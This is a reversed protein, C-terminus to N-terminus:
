FESLNFKGLLISDSISIGSADILDSNIKFETVRLESFRFDKGKKALYLKMSDSIKNIRLLILGNKDSGIKEIASLSGNIEFVFSNSSNGTFVISTDSFGNKIIGSVQAKTVPIIIFKGTLEKKLGTRNNKDLKNWEASINYRKGFESLLADFDEQSKNSSASDYSTVSTELQTKLSDFSKSLEKNEESSCSFIAFLAFILILNYKM